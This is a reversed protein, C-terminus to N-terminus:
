DLPAKAYQEESAEILLRLLKTAAVGREREKASGAETSYASTKKLLRNMKALHANRARKEKWAEFRSFMIRESFSFYTSRVDAIDRRFALPLMDFRIGVIEMNRRHIRREEPTRKSDAIADWREFKNALRKIRQEESEEEIGPMDLQAITQSPFVWPVVGLVLVLGAHCLQLRLFGRYTRAGTFRLRM